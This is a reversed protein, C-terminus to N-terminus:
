RAYWILLARRSPLWSIWNLSASGEFAEGGVWIINSWPLTIKMRQREHIVFTQSTDYFFFVNSVSGFWLNINTKEPSFPLSPIALFYWPQTKFGFINGHFVRRMKPHNVPDISPDGFDVSGIGTMDLILATGCQNKKSNPALKTFGFEKRFFIEPIKKWTLFNVYWACM